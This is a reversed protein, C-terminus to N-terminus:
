SRGPAARPAGTTETRRRGARTATARGMFPPVGQVSPSTRGATVRAAREAAMDELRGSVGERRAGESHLWLKLKATFWLSPDVAGPWTGAEWSEAIQEYREPTTSM